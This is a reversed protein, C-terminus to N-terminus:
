VGGFFLKIRANPLSTKLLIGDILSHAIDPNIRCVMIKFVFYDFCFGLFSYVFPHCLYGILQFLLIRLNWKNEEWSEM